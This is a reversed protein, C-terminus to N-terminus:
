SAIQCAVIVDALVATHIYLRIANLNYAELLVHDRFNASDDAWAGGSNTGRRAPRQTRVGAVPPSLRALRIRLRRWVASTRAVALGYAWKRGAWNATKRAKTCLMGNTPAPSVHSSPYKKSLVSALDLSSLSSETRATYTTTARGPRARVM